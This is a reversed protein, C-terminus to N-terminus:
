VVPVVLELGASEDYGCVVNACQIAQGAAGKMLNDIACAVVLVGARSLAIGIHARNTGSVHSTSPMDGPECIKIFPEESYRDVYLTFVEDFSLHEDVAIYTTSLLGRTMPVLHPSFVADIPRQALVSAQQEIEPVHRHVGVKYPTVAENAVPFHTKASVAKGAGSVGSKADVILTDGIVHGSQLAPAVALLTATPYCGPCAVLQGGNLQARYLEPLGYVARGLLAPSTHTTEYWQEYTESCSLRYDASLDIVTVGASLLDPVWNMAATHPLALFVIEACKALADVNLDEFRLQTAGTLKPYVDAVKNGVETRSTVRALRFFPHGLLLRTLEIGTYGSAGIVAVDM